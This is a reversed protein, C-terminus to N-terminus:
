GAMMHSTTLEVHHEDPWRRQFKVGELTSVDESLAAEQRHSPSLRSTHVLTDSILPQSALGKEMLAQVLSLMLISFLCFTTDTRSTGVTDGWSGEPLM